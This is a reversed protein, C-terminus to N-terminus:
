MGGTVNFFAARCTAVTGPPSHMTGGTTQPRWILSAVLAAGYSPQTRITLLSFPLSIGVLDMGRQALVRGWSM